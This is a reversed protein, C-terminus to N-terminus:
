NGLYKFADPLEQERFNMWPFEKVRFAADLNAKFYVKCGATRAQEYLDVVWAFPPVWAPTRTSQSAGGIAVWDFLELRDFKLPELLPEISLWRVGSNVSDFAEEAAKVRAQCDVTTGLWANDPYDFEVMRKPFKTLFLFNWQPNAAVQAFVAEIWEAPVWRGFLDAMSCTFVNKYSIDKAARDPVHTNTPADFRDPLISPQFKQLYFREAIDRAYCYPCDHKCGTVPNWSWRAWEIADNDQKNFKKGARQFHLAKARGGESLGQWNKLTIHAQRRERSGQKTSNSSSIGTSAVDAPVSYKISAPQTESLSFEDETIMDALDPAGEGLRAFEAEHNNAAEKRFKAQEYAKDLSLSGTLVSDALEPAHNLVTRAKSLHNKSFGEAVSCNKGRGGKEPEPYIKATAMARQGKSLHRRNINTSIIYATVDQGNLHEVEPEVGARQCAERRNRGDVLVTKGDLEGLMLPMQLGNAKISEALDNLEDEPLMPFVDTAPHVPMNFIRQKTKGFKELNTVNTM